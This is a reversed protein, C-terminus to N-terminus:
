EECTAMQCDSQCKSTRTSSSWSWICPESPECSSILNWEVAEAGNEKLWKNACNFYNKCFFNKGSVRPSPHGGKFVKHKSNKVTKDFAGAKSGWLIFAMPHDLTDVYDMLSGTFDQWLSLHGGITCSTAGHPCPITLAMNLLLVGDEAWKSLDGDDLNVCFQENQVELFVRQVSAVDGTPEDPALSFSLGTALGPQPAPDQGMILSRANDSPASYLARFTWGIKPSIDNGEAVQKELEDSIKKIKEKVDKRKFFGDWGKPPCAYTLDYLTTDQWTANERREDCDDKTDAVKSKEASSKTNTSEEPTSEEASYSESDPLATINEPTNTSTAAPQKHCGIVLLFAFWYIMKQRIM